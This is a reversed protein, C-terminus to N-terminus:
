GCGPFVTCLNALSDLSGVTGRKRRRRVSLAPTARFLIREGRRPKGLPAASHLKGVFNWFQKQARFIPEKSPQRTPTKTLPSLSPIPPTLLRTTGSKPTEFRPKLECLGLLTARLFFLRVWHTPNAPKETQQHRSTINRPLKSAHYQDAMATVAHTSVVRMVVVLM